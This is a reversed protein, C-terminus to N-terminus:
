AVMNTNLKIQSRKPPFWVIPRIVLAKFPKLFAGICKAIMLDSISNFSGGINFTNAERVGVLVSSLTLHLPTFHDEFVVQNRFTWILWFTHTIAM